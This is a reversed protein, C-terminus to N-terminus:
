SWHMCFSLSNSDRFTFRDAKQISRLCVGLRDHGSQTLGSFRLALLDQGSYGPFCGCRQAAVDPWEANWAASSDGSEPDDPSTASWDPRVDPSFMAGIATVPVNAAAAPHVRGFSSAAPEPPGTTTFRLRTSPALLDRYHTHGKGRFPVAEIARGGGGSGRPRNPGDEACEGSPRMYNGTLFPMKHDSNQCINYNNRKDGM